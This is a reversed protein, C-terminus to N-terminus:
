FLTEFVRLVCDFSRGVLTRKPYGKECLKATAFTEECDRKVDMVADCNAFYVANEFHHYLSRYDFNVTGVVACEDDSVISKAHLFGPTYEYLKVGARQLIGYNARTLRYVIKKDPIGPVVIRVDVGRTAAMILAMRMSDDLVLYPTFIYVYKKSRNIIDLYVTEAVSIKDIPSDDYPQLRMGNETLASKGGENENSRLYNELGEGDKRFANWFNFFQVTLSNVANGKIRLVSDKWYGFRVKENIYEDALNIGGTFGVKGDIVMIKRHDRNNMRVAFVPIISNFTMCRINDHLSELYQEYRPPLTTMCGFDDYIMRVQVGQMAKELLIELISNWLKGHEVIFYDLLIFREAKKLEELIVPFADEGCKFYDVEGAGYVPFRGYKTLYRCVGDNRNEGEVAPFEGCLKLFVEENEVKAKEIRKNMGRTPRGEGYLLYTPVGFVPAILMLIIWSVKMSLRDSSSVLYLLAVIELAAVVIQVIIGAQSNYALLFLLLGYAVLQGAILLLIVILRNYLYLKYSRNNAVTREIWRKKRKSLKKM